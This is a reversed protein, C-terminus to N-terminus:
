EPDSLTDAFRRSCGPCSNWTTYTPTFYKYEDDFGEASVLGIELLLQEDSYPSDNGIVKMYVIKADKPWDHSHVLYEGSPNLLGLLIGFTIQMIKFHKSGQGPLDSTFIPAM